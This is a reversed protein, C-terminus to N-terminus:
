PNRLGLAVPQEEGPRARLAVVIAAIAIALAVDIRWQLFGAFAFGPLMAAAWAALTRMSFAALTMRELLWFWLICSGGVVVAELLLPVAVERWDLPQWLSREYILGLGADGVASLVLFSGALALTGVGALRPRAYAWTFVIVINLLVQALLVATQNWAISYADVPIVLYAAGVGAIAAGAVARPVEVPILELASLLALWLPAALSLLLAVGWRTEHLWPMARVYPASLPVALWQPLLLALLTLWHKARLMGERKAVSVLLLVIGSLAGSLAGGALTQLHVTSDFASSSFGRVPGALVALVAFAVFVRRQSTSRESDM